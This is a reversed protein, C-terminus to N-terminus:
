TIKEVSNYKCNQLLERVYGQNPIYLDPKIEHLPRLVFGREHALPHPITLRNNSMTIDSFVIIDLDLTRPGWHENGHNRCHQDEISQLENLFREPDLSTKLWAAANMYDPQNQPGMPKSKYLSSVAHCETDHLLRLEKFTEKVQLSPNELNSGIGVFVDSLTDKSLNNNRTKDTIV